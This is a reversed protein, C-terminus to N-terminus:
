ARACEAGAGGFALHVHALGAVVGAATSLTNNHLQSAIFKIGYSQLRALRDPYLVWGLLRFLSFRIWGWVGHTM